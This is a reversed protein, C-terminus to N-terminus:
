PLIEFENETLKTMRIGTVEEEIFENRLRESIIPEPSILLKFYDLTSDFNKLVIKEKNVPEGVALLEDPSHINM